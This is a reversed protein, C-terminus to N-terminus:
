HLTSPAGYKKAEEPRGLAEYTAVLDERASVLWSVGPDTQSSVTAYGALLVPEADRWKRQSVLARGLKIQAIGTNLHDASLTRTFLAVVNRFEREARPYNGENLAVGALNSEAIGVLYHEPGLIDLYISRMRGYLSEAKRFEKRTVAVTGQENLASAVRPHVPGYVREQVAVATALISDAEPLREQRILARALMTLNSATRPHDAGYWGTTIVLARRYLTEADLYKGLEFQVAGLNILDDAVLPHDSGHERETIVLSRRSLSDAAAFDGAYFHSNSLENLAMAMDRPGAGSLELLTVARELERISEDYGGAAQLSAGVILHAHAVTISGPTGESIVSRAITAAADHDAQEIRLRAMALMSAHRDPDGAPLLAERGTLALSLMSDAHDLQGLKLYIDGLTAYMDAQVAPEENLLAAEQRGRDLLTVVRLSDAPGLLENGGSFLELTFQQIREARSGAAVAERRAAALNVTYWITLIVAALTTVAAAAVARRNRRVFKATRYPLDDPRAAIPRGKLLSELDEAFAEASGYRRDPDPHLAKMVAVDLDAWESRSVNGLSPASAGSARHRISPREVPLGTALAQGAPDTGGLHGYPATGTLLQYLVAGLAYVDTFAGAPDGSRQEPAAYAPTMLRLGTVTGDEREWSAEIQKAIGFDVLKLSGHRDVLINSPKLDRHIIARQHAHHAAAAAAIILRLRDALSLSGAGAYSTIPLGGEVYEMAFWPTGDALVDADLFRAIGPHNLRALLREEDSFRARRAPSLWADRLVKVAARSDPNSREALYVAGMGGEGLLSVIRYPGFERDALDLPDSTLLVHISDDLSRDLLLDSAQDATFLNHLEEILDPDDPLTALWSKQRERDLTVGEHFLEAIRAARSSPDTM